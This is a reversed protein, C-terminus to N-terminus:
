SFWNGPQNLLRDVMGPIDGSLQWIVGM